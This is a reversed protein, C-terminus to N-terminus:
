GPIQGPPPTMVLEYGISLTHGGDTEAEGDVLDISLTAGITNVQWTGGTWDGDRFSTAPDAQSLSIIQFTSTNSGGVGGLSLDYDEDGREARLLIRGFQVGDAEFWVQAERGRDGICAAPAGDYSASADFTADMTTGNFVFLDFSVSATEAPELGAACGNDESTDDSGTCAAACLAVIAFGVAKGSM